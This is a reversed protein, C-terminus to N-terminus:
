GYQPRASPPGLGGTHRDAQGRAATTGLQQRSPSIDALMRQKSAAWRRDQREISRRAQVAERVRAQLYRAMWRKMRCM